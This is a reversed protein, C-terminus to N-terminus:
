DCFDKIGIPGLHLGSTELEELLAKADKLDKTGFGESFWGYVPALLDYAEGVRGQERLLRAYSMATRLEWSKAQQTRAWDLSALYAREAGGPDGNLSLLGAKIRLTEAYYYREERDPREVEAIVEDILHLAGDLNGLQAMGEALVSRWYPSGLRGAGEEWVALGRELTAMGDVVKGKHILAIGSYAPVPCETVFALSNERGVRDAEAVRKLLEDPEGLHDFVLAGNTLAWGLDFPHGLKRALAECDERLQAAQEPYGLIWAAQAGWGLAVTKPDNNLIRVLHGHQEERYLSLIQDAHERAKIPDGLWLYSIEACYHQLIVLDPDRYAEAADSTQAVWHFPSPCSDSVLYM